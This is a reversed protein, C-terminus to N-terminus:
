IGMGLVIHGLLRTLAFASRMCTEHNQFAKVSMNKQIVLLDQGVTITYFHVPSISCDTTIVWFTTMNPPLQGPKSNAAPSPQKGISQYYYNFQYLFSFSVLVFFKSPAFCSSSVHLARVYFYPVIDMKFNIQIAKIKLLKFVPRRSINQKISM